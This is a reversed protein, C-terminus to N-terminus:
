PTLNHRVLKFGVGNDPASMHTFGHQKCLFVVIELAECTLWGQILAYDKYIAITYEPQENM